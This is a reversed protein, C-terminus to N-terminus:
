KLNESVTVNCGILHFQCNVKQYLCYQELHEAM